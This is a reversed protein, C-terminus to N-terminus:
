KCHGQSAALRPLTSIIAEWLHPPPDDGRVRVLWQGAHLDPTPPQVLVLALVVIQKARGFASLHDLLSGGHSGVGGASKYQVTLALQGQKPMRAPIRDGNGKLAGTVQEELGIVRNGIDAVVGGCARWHDVGSINQQNRCRSLRPACLRSLFLFLFLILFCLSGHCFM